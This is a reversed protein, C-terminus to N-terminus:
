LEVDPKKPKPLEEGEPPKNVDPDTPEKCHYQALTSVNVQLQGLPGSMVCWGRWVKICVVVCKGPCPWPEPARPPANWPFLNIPNPNPNPWANIPFVNTACTYTMRCPCSKMNAFVGPSLDGGKALQVWGGPGAQQLLEFPTTATNAHGALIHTLTATTAARKQERRWLFVLALAVVLLFSSIIPFIVPVGM